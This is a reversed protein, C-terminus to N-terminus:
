DFGELSNTTYHTYNIAQIILNKQSTFKSFREWVCKLLAVVANEGPLFMQNNLDNILDMIVCVGQLFEVLIIRFGSSKERDYPEKRM